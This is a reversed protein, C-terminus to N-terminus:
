AEEGDAPTAGLRATADRIADDVFSRTIEFDRGDMVASFAAYAILSRETESVQDWLKRKNKMAKTETRGKFAM